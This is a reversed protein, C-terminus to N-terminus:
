PTKSFNKQCIEVTFENGCDKCKYTYYYYNPANHATKCNVKHSIACAGNCVECVVAAQTTKTGQNDSFAIISLVVFTIVIILSVIGTGFAKSKM